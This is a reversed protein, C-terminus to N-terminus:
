AIIKLKLKVAREAVDIHEIAVPKKLCRVISCVIASCIPCCFQTCTNSYTRRITECLEYNTSHTFNVYIIKGTRRVSLNKIGVTNWLFTLTTDIADINLTSIVIDTEKECAELLKICSPILAVGMSTGDAGTLFVKNRDIKPIRLKTAHLPIFVREENNLSPNSPLYIASADLNLNKLIANTHAVNTLVYANLVDQSVMKETIVFLAFLGIFIACFGIKIYLDTKVFLILFLGAGLLIIGFLKARIAKFTM